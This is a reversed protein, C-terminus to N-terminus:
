LKDKLPAATYMMTTKGATNPMSTGQILSGKLAAEIVSCTTSSVCDAMSEKKEKPVRSRIEDLSMWRADAIEEPDVKIEESLPRLRVVSYIDGQGFRVGHAHRMSVVGFLETKIGTEEFVERGATTALDEGPDALGGPLKWLGQFNANENTREQVMLVEDKSNVVAGGVGIQTFSYRPLKNPSEELWRALMVYDPKAHHFEFGEDVLPCIFRACSIPVKFWIGRKKKETWEALSTKLEAAFDTASTLSEAAIDINVGGFRDEKGEYTKVTAPAPSAM